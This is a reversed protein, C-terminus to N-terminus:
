TAPVAAPKIAGERQAQAALRQAERRALL